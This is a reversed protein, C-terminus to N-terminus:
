TQELKEKEERGRTGKCDAAKGSKKFIKAAEILTEPSFATLGKRFLWLNNKKPPPPIFLGLYSM